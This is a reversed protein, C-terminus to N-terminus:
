PHEMHPCVGDCHHLAFNCNHCAIRFIPPYDNKKVWEYLKSNGIKKRHQNGGGDIHDLVLFIINDEGCCFCKGGYHELVEQKLRKRRERAADLRMKRFRAANKEQWDDGDEPSYPGILGSRRDKLDQAIEDRHLKRYKILHNRFIEPYSERWKKLNAYARKPDQKRWANSGM